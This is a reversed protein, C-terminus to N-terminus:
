QTAGAPEQGEVLSSSPEGGITEPQVLSITLDPDQSYIRLCVVCVANWCYDDGDDDEEEAEASSPESAEDVDSKPIDPDSRAEDNEQHLLARTPKFRVPLKRMTTGNHHPGKTTQANHGDLNKAADEGKGAQILNKLDIVMDKPVDFQAQLQIKVNGPRKGKNRAKGPKDQVLKQDEDTIGGKAHALDYQMGIQRLKQPNHQAFYKVYYGLTSMFEYRTATIKPIVEYKGPDLLVEASVARRGFGHGAARARCIYDSSPAGVKKLLFHLEFVYQLDLNKFYRDDM